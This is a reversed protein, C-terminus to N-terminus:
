ISVNLELPNMNTGTITIELEMNPTTFNSVISDMDGLPGNFIVGLPYHCHFGPQFILFGHEHCIEDEVWFLQSTFERHGVIHRNQLFARLRISTCGKDLVIAQSFNVVLDDTPLVEFGVESNGGTTTDEIVEDSWLNSVNVDGGGLWVKDWSLDNKASLHIEIQKRYNEAAGHDIVIQSDAEAVERTIETFYAVTPDSIINHITATGNVFVIGAEPNNPDEPVDSVNIVVDAIMFSAVKVARSTQETIFFKGPPILFVHGKLDSWYTAGFMQLPVLNIVSNLETISRYENQGGQGNHYIDFGNLTKSAASPGNIACQTYCIGSSVRVGEPDIEGPHDEELSTFFSDFHGIANFDEDAELTFSLATLETLPIASIALEEIVLRLFQPLGLYSFISRFGFLLNLVEENIESTIPVHGGGNVFAAKVRPDPTIQGHIGVSFGNIWANPEETFAPYIDGFTLPSSIFQSDLLPLPFGLVPGGITQSGAALGLLGGIGYSMRAFTDYLGLLHGANKYDIGPNGVGLGVYNSGPTYPSINPEQFQYPDFGPYVLTTPNPYMIGQYGGSFIGVDPQFPQYGQLALIWPKNDILNGISNM